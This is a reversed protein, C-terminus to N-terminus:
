TTSRSRQGALPPEVTEDVRMPMTRAIALTAVFLTAAGIEFARPVGLRQALFGLIMQGLGLTAGFVLAWLGMVRGRLADPVSVQISTNSTSFFAIMCLGAAARAVCALFLHRIEGMAAVSLAFGALCAVVVRDPRRPTHGSVWVAGLLAGVGSSAFLWGFGTEGVHLDDRAYAPLLSGYSWGVLMAIGLLIMLTRVGPNRRLYRVGELLHEVFRGEHRVIERPAIRMLAFGAVAATYSVGDLVFVWGIGAVRMVVAAVTPGVILALNFMASNLAVANRLREHGVMEAMFAQRCPMEFATVLGGAAALAIVHAVHVRGTLVLTSLVASIAMQVLQIRLLLVRKDVRDAVAGAVGALLALPLLSLAGVVGLLRTDGTLDYVLWGQATSMAWSGVMSLGQGIFFLRYNRDLLAAFTRRAWPEPPPFPAETPPEALRRPPQAPM